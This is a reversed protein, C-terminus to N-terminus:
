LTASYSNKKSEDKEIVKKSVLSGGLHILCPLLKPILKLIKRKKKKHEFEKGSLSAEGEDNSKVKQTIFIATNYM